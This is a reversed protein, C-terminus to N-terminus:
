EVGRYNLFRQVDSSRTDATLDLTAVPVYGDILRNAGTPEGDRSVLGDAFVLVREGVFKQPFLEFLYPRNL